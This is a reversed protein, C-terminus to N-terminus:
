SHLKRDLLLHLGHRPLEVARVARIEGRGSKTLNLLDLRQTEPIQRDAYGLRLVRERVVGFDEAARSVVLDVNALRLYARARSEHHYVGAVNHRHGAQGFDGGGGLDSHFGVALYVAQKLKTNPTPPHTNPFATGEFM